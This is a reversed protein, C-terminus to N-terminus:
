RRSSLSFAVTLSVGPPSVCADVPNPQYVWDPSVVTELGAKLPILVKRPADTRLDLRQSPPIGELAVPLLTALLLAVPQIPPCLTLSLSMLAWDLPLIMELAVILTAQLLVVLLILSRVV